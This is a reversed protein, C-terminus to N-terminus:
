GKEEKRGELRQKPSPKLALVKERLDQEKPIFCCVQYAVELTRAKSINLDPKSM